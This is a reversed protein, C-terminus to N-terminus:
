MPLLSLYLHIYIYILTTFRDTSVKLLLSNKMFSTALKVQHDPHRHIDHVEDNKKEHIDIICVIMTVVM